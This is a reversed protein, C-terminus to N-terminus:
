IKKDRAKLITEHIREKVRKERRQRRRNLESKRLHRNSGM